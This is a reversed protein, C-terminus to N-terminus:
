RTGGGTVSVTVRAGAPLYTGSAPSQAMVTGPGGGLSTDRPPGGSVTNMITVDGLRLGAQELLVRAEIITRGLVDPVLYTAPGASVILTVASPVPASSGGQPSTAIVLGLPQDSAQRVTDPALTFGAATLVSDAQPPALGVVDPVDGMRPGASLDLTVSTGLPAQSGQDPTMQIVSLKPTAAQFRMEGRKVKFGAQRLRQGAVDFSLGMVNPVTADAPPAGSPFVFAAILVWALAFGGVSAALYPWTRTWPSM